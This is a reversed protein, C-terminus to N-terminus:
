KTEESKVEIVVGEDESIEKAHQTFLNKLWSWIRLLIPFINPRKDFLISLSIILIATLFIVSTYVDFLKIFPLSVFSGVFGGARLLTLPGQESILIDIIGLSALLIFVSSVVHWLGINPRTAKLYSAGLLISIIPLLSYAIGFLYSFISFISRGAVGAKDFASLIFFLAVVFSIVSFIGNKTESGLSTRSRPSDSAPSRQQDKKAM